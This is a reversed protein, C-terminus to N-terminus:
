AAAHRDQIQFSWATAEDYLTGTVRGHLIGVLRNALQRLAAEHGLGRSRQKDYYARVGPSRSPAAFAQRSLGDILRDNHVYRALVIKKKNKGPQRTIPPVGPRRTVALDDGIEALARVGLGHGPGVPQNV